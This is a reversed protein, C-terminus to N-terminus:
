KQSGSHNREALVDELARVKIRFEQYEVRDSALAAMRGRAIELQEEVIDTDVRSYIAKWNDGMKRRHEKTIPGNRMNM